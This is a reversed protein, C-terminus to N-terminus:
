AAPRALFNVRDATAFIHAFHARTYPGDLDLGLIEYGLGTLLDHITEPTTGYHDASGLGHEFAIVPRHRRLTELGGRLVEEEAGEADLKVFAPRVGEPLADDLRECSVTIREVPGGAPTPRERFGSWGPDGLVHVFEREGARDSLASERVQVDRFRKALSAAHEPLPEWAVHRGHPALRVIEELVGGDHAGIDLCDSNPALIEALRAGLLERDRIDAHVHAPLFRRRLAVLRERM